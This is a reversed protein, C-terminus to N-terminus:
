EYLDKYVMKIDRVFQDPTTFLLTQMGLDKAAAINKRSNDIFLVDAARLKMKQLAVDFPKPNPKVDAVDPDCSYIEFDFYDKTAFTHQIHRSMEPTSNSLLAVVLGNERMKKAVSLVHPYVVSSRLYEASLEPVKVDNDNSLDLRDLIQRWFNEKTLAGVAYKNYIDETRINLEDLTLGTKRNLVPAILPEGETACTGAWDFLVGRM